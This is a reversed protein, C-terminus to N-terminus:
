GWLVMYMILFNPVMLFGLGFISMAIRLEIVWGPIVWAAITAAAGILMFISTAIVTVIKFIKEGM